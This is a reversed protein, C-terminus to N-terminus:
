LSKSYKLIKNISEESPNKILKNLAPKLQEYFLHEEITFNKMATKEENNQEGFLESNHQTFTEIM